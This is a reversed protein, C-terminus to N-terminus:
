QVSQETGNKEGKESCCSIPLSLLSCSPFSKIPSIPSGLSFFMSSTTPELTPAAPPGNALTTTATRQDHSNEAMTFLNTKYSFDSARSKRAFAPEYTRGFPRLRRKCHFSFSVLVTSSIPNTQSPVPVNLSYHTITRFDVLQSTSTSSLPPEESFPYCM